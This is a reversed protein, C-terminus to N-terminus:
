ILRTCSRTAHCNINVAVPLGAIHTPYTEVNVGLCTNKGGLGMPGINLDNIEKLLRAELSRIGKDKNPKIIDRFMAKKAILAAKDFTGGIGVGVVFPPCANPGAEKVTKVVAEIIKDEGDTPNLMYIRSKNESGFGKPFVTIKVKSGAVIETTLMAPYTKAKTKRSVPDNVVSSRFYGKTYGKEVGKNVADKLTGGILHVDQGVEIHVVCLGTDQCIALKDKEAIDANELLIKLINKARKNKESHFAKKLARKIDNRIVINAEICMKAIANSIDNVNIKRM